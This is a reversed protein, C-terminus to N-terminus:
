WKGTRVDSLMDTPWGTRRQVNTLSYGRRVLDRAEGYSYRNRLEEQAAQYDREERARFVERQSAASQASLAVSLAQQARELAIRADLRRQHESTEVAASIVRPESRRLARVMPTSDRTRHWKSQPNLM